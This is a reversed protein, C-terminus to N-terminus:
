PPSMDGLKQVLLSVIDKTAGLTKHYFYYLQVSKM